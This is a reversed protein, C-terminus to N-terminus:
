SVSLVGANGTSPQASAATSLIAPAEAKDEGTPLRVIFESGKGPTSTATITGGHAEIVAKVISLGLGTSGDARSRAKDVRFFREFIRPLMEPPIGEGEDRVTLVADTGDQKLTVHIKCGESNHKIANSLLNSVVQQIKPADIMANIEELDAIIEGSRQEALPGVFRIADEVVEELYNPSLNMVSEGSDMRALELLSNVVQKMQEGSRQCSELAERYEEPARERMLALETQALIVSVPTRLEHSADATFQAQQEFTDHLREFTQNLLMALRGLESKTEDTNIRKTLDGESIKEAAASIDAIPRLARGALWWGVLLGTLVVGAGIGVLYFALKEMAVDVAALSSGFIVCEGRPQFHLLERMGDRSRSFTEGSELREDHPPVIKPANASRSKERQNEDYLVFYIPSRDLSLLYAKERDHENRAPAGLPPPRRNNGIMGEGFPFVGFLDDIVPDMGPPPQPPRGAEGAREPRLVPLVMMLTTRLRDDIRSVRQQREYGYFAFLLVSTMLVLLAGHWAQIQWRISHSFM